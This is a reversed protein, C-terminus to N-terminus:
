GEWGNMEALTRWSGGTLCVSELSVNKEPKKPMSKFEWWESGDYEHRELWFDKGVVLLDKAIEQGGFGSYYNTDKAIAEFKDWSFHVSETGVWEVDKKSLNRSELARLTEELLNKYRSM